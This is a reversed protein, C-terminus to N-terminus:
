LSQLIKSDLYSQKQFRKMFSKQEMKWSDKRQLHLHLHKGLEQTQLIEAVLLNKVPIASSLNFLNEEDLLVNFPNIYEEELVRIMEAVLKKSMLIQSSHFPKYKESSSYIGGMEKMAKTNRAQAARNLCWKLVANSDAM